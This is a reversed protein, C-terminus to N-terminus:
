RGGSSTPLENHALDRRIDELQRCTGTKVSLQKIQIAAMEEATKDTTQQTPTALDDALDVQILDAPRRIESECSGECTASAHAVKKLSAPATGARVFNLM